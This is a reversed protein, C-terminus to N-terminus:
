NATIRYSTFLSIWFYTRMLRRQPRNASDWRLSIRNGKRRRKRSEPIVISTNKGAEVRPPDWHGYEKNELGSGSIKRRLLEETTSALSLPGRELGVLEWFIQYTKIASQKPSRIGVLDTSNEISKIRGAASRGQLRPPRYSQSVDLSGRKGCLRSVSPLSTTLRVRRGSKIEM